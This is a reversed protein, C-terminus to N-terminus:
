YFKIDKIITRGIKKNLKEIIENKFFHLENRWVTDKVKVFLSGKLVKFPETQAAIEKGVISDWYVIAFNEEIREKVGISKLFQFILKNIPRAEAM